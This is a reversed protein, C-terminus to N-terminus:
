SVHAAEKKRRGRPASSISKHVADRDARITELLVSAPEDNPDQMVLNGEFAQKLIAQRLREARRLESEIETEVEDILSLRRQLEDVIRKQEALPPLPVVIGRVITTNLNPQAAGQNIGRLKRTQSKLFY